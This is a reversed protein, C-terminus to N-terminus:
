RTNVMVEASAGVRLPYQMLLLTPDVSVRVTFRQTVKVWNGTANEPPLLSFISGNAASVSEVKGPFTVGPYMDVEINATQGPRIRKLQTEKFNADVWVDTDQDVVAFLQDGTNVVMGPRLSLHTVAGAVPATVVTYTLNLQATQLEAEAVKVQSKQTTLDEQAQVLSAQAGALKAQAARLDALTQDGLERSVYGKQLLHQIREQEKQKFILNAEASSVNSNALAIAAADSKLQAEAVREQAQAQELANQFPASDITFLVQGAKVEDHDTVRVSQVAGTVQPAIYAINANVYADETSPYYTSQYLYYAVGVAVLGVIGLVPLLKKKSIKM